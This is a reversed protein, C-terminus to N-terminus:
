NPLFTLYSLLNEDFMENAIDQLQRASIKEIQQFVEELSEINNTNLISKGMM